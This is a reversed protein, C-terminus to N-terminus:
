NLTRKPKKFSAEDDRDDETDENKQEIRRYALVFGKRVHWSFPEDMWEIPAAVSAFYTLMAHLLTHENFLRHATVIDGQERAEQMRAGKESYLADMQQIFTPVQEQVFDDPRVDSLHEGILPLIHTPFDSVERLLEIISISAQAFPPSNKTM